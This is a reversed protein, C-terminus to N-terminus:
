KTKSELQSVRQQLRFLQTELEKMKQKLESTEQSDSVANEAQLLGAGLEARKLNLEQLAEVDSEDVEGHATYQNKLAKQQEQIQRSLQTM